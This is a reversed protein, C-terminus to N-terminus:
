ARALPSRSCGCHSCVSGCLARMGPQMRSSAPFSFGTGQRTGGTRNINWILAAANFRTASSSITWPTDRPYRAGRDIPARPTRASKPQCRPLPGGCREHHKSPSWLSPSRISGSQMTLLQDQPRMRDVLNRLGNRRAELFRPNHRDKHCREVFPSNAEKSRCRRVQM